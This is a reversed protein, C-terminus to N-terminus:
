SRHYSGAVFLREFEERVRMGTGFDPASPILTSRSMHLYPLFHQGADRVPVGAGRAYASILPARGREAEAIGRLIASQTPRGLLACAQVLFHFLDYFPPAERESSEWDVAIWADNARLLNWPAFDGHAFGGEPTAGKAHFRGLSHAVNAPLEWPRTRPRWRIPEVLLIGEDQELIRPAKLPDSSTRLWRGSRRPRGRLAGRADEDLAM